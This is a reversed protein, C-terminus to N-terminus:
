DDPRPPDAQPLQGAIREVIQADFVAIQEEIFDIQTLHSAILFRHHERVHGSLARELERAGFAVPGAELTTGTIKITRDTM